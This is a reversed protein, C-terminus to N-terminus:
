WFSGPCSNIFTYYHWIQHIVTFSPNQLASVFASQTSTLHPTQSTHLTCCTWFINSILINQLYVIYLSFKPQTFVLTWLYNPWTSLIFSHHPVLESFKNQYSRHFFFRFPSWLFATIVLNQLTNRILINQAHLKPFCTIIFSVWTTYWSQHLHLLRM